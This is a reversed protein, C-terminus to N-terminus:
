THDSVSEYEVVIADIEAWDVLMIQVCCVRVRAQWNISHDSFHTVNESIVCVRDVLLPVRSEDVLVLEKLAEADESETVLPESDEAGEPTITWLLM